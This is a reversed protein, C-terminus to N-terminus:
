NIKFIAEIRYLHSSSWDCVEGNRVAVVHDTTTVIYVGRSPLIRGLTKLTKAKRLPHSDLLEIYSCGLYRTALRIENTSAGDRFPRGAKTLAKWAEMYSTHAAIALAIVSCDDTEGRRKSELGLERRTEIM